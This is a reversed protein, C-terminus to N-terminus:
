DLTRIRVQRFRAESNHNQLVIPSPRLQQRDLETELVKVRGAL